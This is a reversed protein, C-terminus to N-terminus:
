TIYAGQLCLEKNERKLNTWFMDTHYWRGNCKNLNKTNLNKVNTPGAFTGSMCKNDCFGCNFCRICQGFTKGDCSTCYGGSNENLGEVTNNM